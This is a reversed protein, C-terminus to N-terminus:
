EYGGLYAQQVEENAAVEDPTGEGIIRGKHLVTISDSINMVLNVDHEVLVLTRDALVDGVLEIISDTEDSSMGATPEDLMVVDPDTALVIGIELRRRDGYALTNAEADAQGALGIQDIVEETVANIDEFENPLTLLSDTVGLDPYSDSQAAIRVNERVTLGDFVNTLQFSRALGRTVRDSPSLATVDEGKFYISGSTPQLGGTILNFLTTKGAGNPGIISRFEGDQIDLSVEDVATLEGFRKTLGDTRLM